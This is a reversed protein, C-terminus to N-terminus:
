GIDIFLRLLIRKFEWIVDLEMSWIVMGIVVSWRAIQIEFRVMVVVVVVVVGDYVFYYIYLFCVWFVGDFM